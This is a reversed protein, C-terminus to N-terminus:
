RRPLATLGAEALREDRDAEARIQEEFLSPLVVAGVGAEALREVREATQTMPGASAVLPNRLKLGLYSTDLNM